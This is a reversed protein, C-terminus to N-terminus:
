CQKTQTTSSLLFSATNPHKSTINYIIPFVRHFPLTTCKTCFDSMKSVVIIIRISRVNEFEIKQRFMRYLLIGYSYVDISNTYTDDGTFLEPANYFPTNIAIATNMLHAAFKIHEFDYWNYLVPEHHDNLLVNELKVDRHMIRKEHLQRIISAIGFIIKCRVTPNIIENNCM